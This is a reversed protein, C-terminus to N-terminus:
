PCCHGEIVAESATESSEICKKRNQSAKAKGFAEKIFTLGRCCRPPLVFVKRFYIERVTKWKYIFRELKPEKKYEM